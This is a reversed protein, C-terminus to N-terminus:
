PPSVETEGQGCAERLGASPTLTAAPESRLGFRLEEMPSLVKSSSKPINLTRWPRTVESAKAISLIIEVAQKSPWV